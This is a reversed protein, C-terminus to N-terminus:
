WLVRSDAATFAELGDGLETHLVIVVLSLAHLVDYVSAEMCYLCFVIEVSVLCLLLYPGRDRIM